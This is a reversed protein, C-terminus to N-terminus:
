DGFYINGYGDVFVGYPDNLTAQTAPCGDGAVATGFATPLTTTCATNGSGAPLGAVTSAFPVPLVAPAQAAAGCAGALAAALAALGAQKITRLSQKMSKRM